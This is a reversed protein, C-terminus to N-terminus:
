SNMRLKDTMGLETISTLISASTKCTVVTWTDQAEMMYGLKCGDIYHDALCEHKAAGRAMSSLYSVLARCGRIIHTLSPAQFAKVSPECVLALAKVMWGLGVRRARRGVCGVCQGMGGVRGLPWVQVLPDLEMHDGAPRLVDM